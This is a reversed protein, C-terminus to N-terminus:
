PTLRINNIIVPPAPRTFVFPVSASCAEGWIGDIMKCARVTLSNAGTTATAVDLKLSGDAQAAVSAPVWAPGTLQYSTVGAQPDCILFPSGLAMGAMALLMVVVVLVTKM